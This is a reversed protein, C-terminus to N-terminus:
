VSIQHVLVTHKSKEQIDRYFSSYFGARFFSVTNSTALVVESFHLPFLTSSSLTRRVTPAKTRCPHPSVSCLPHSTSYPSKSLLWLVASTPPVTVSPSVKLSVLLTLLRQLQLSPAKQAEMDSRTLSHIPLAIWASATFPNQLSCLFYNLSYMSNLVGFWASAEWKHHPLLTIFEHYASFILLLFHM